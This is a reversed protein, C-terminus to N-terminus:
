KRAKRDAAIMRDYKERVAERWIDTATPIPSAGARRLAEVMELDLPEARINIQPRMEAKPGRERVFADIEDLASNIAAVAEAACVAFWEGRERHERLKRHALGEVAYADARAGSSHVLTLHRGTASQLSKLRASPDTAVGIKALGTACKIVYVKKEIIM